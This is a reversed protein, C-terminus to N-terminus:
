DGNTAVLRAGALVSSFLTTMVDIGFVKAIFSDAGSCRAAEIYANEYEGSLAIRRGDPNRRLATALIQLGERGTALRIDSVVIQFYNPPNKDLLSLASPLTSAEIINLSRSISSLATRVGARYIHDDDVLLLNNTTM